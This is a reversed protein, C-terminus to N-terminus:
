SRHVIGALHALAEPEIDWGNALMIEGRSRAMLPMPDEFAWAEELLEQSHSYLSSVSHIRPRKGRWRVMQADIDFEFDEAAAGIGARGQAAELVTGNPHYVAEHTVTKGSEDIYTYRLSAHSPIADDHRAPKAQIGVGTVVAGTGAVFGIARGLFGRRKM